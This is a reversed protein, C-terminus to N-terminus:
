IVERSLSPEFEIVGLDIGIVDGGAFKCRVNVRPRGRLSFTEEQTLPVLFNQSESDFTIDGGYLTKRVKGICVEVNVFASADAIGDSTTIRIPLKCADGAMM